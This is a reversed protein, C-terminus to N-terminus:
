NTKRTMISPVALDSGGINAGRSSLSTKAKRHIVIIAVSISRSRAASDGCLDALIDDGSNRLEAISSGFGAAKNRKMWARFTPVVASSMRRDPILRLTPALPIPGVTVKRANVQFHGM